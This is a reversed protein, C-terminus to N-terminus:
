TEGLGAVKTWSAVHASACGQWRFQSVRGVGVTLRQASVALVQLVARAIDVVAEPDFFVVSDGCVEPLSGSSAAAVPCGSAMAELVPLGFGEYLSPFALCSGRRYLEAVEDDSVLGRHDVWDPLVGLADRRGGTLVLRLEPRERRVLRMAEILRAHNKHPWAAAPYFVFPERPGDSAVFRDSDVGHHAVDIRDRAIGLQASIRDRCFESVTIVRDARRAPADYAIARYGREARSFMAPLDHHQVDALTVVWPVGRPPLPVPVTFPYHVVDARRLLQRTGRDARAARALTTLRALTSPGGVVSDVVHEQDAGLAGAGSRSTIVTLDVDDREQLHAVLAKVYTETGGMGGPVYTLVPMVVRVPANM